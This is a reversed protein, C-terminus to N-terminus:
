KIKKSYLFPINSMSETGGSIVTDAQSVLIKNISTSIAEMGSACNRQVTYAPVSDPVGAKLSAVRAVNAAKSPQAVNGIIVEDIDNVSVSSKLILKRIVSAGLDDADLSRLETGSKIFPSRVGAIIAIRENM